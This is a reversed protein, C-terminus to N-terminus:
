PYSKKYPGAIFDEESNSQNSYFVNEVMDYMGVKKDSNRVCPVLNCIEVDNDYLIFKYIRGIFTELGSTRPIGNNDIFTFVALVCNANNQLSSTGVLTGDYYYSYQIASDKVLKYNHKTGYDIQTFDLQNINPFYSLISNRTGMYCFTSQGKVCGGFVNAGTGQSVSLDIDFGFNNTSLQNLVFFQKGTSQIYEVQQYGEPLISIYKTVNGQTDIFYGDYYWDNGLETVTITDDNFYSKLENEM